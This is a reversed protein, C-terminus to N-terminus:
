IILEYAFRTPDMLEDVKIIGRKEFGSKEALHQMIKNQPHTDCRIVNFGKDLALTILNSMFFASLNKGRFDASVALRHLTAYLKSSKWAGKEIVSYTPEPTTQLVAYGVIQNDYILVYGNQNNLDTQIDKRAPYEDQWQPVHNKHLFIRAEDIIIMIKDLDNTTAKRVYIMM